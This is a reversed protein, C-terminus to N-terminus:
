RRELAARDRDGLEAATAFTSAHELYACANSM